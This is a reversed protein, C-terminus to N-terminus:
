QNNLIDVRECLWYEGDTVLHTFKGKVSTYVAPLRRNALSVQGADGRGEVSTVIALRAGMARFFPTYLDSKAHHPYKVIDCQLEEAGVRHIMAEQGPKEMDAMFLISRNGFSVKTVASRNNMDLNSETNQLITLTVAGDGMSFVDGDRYETIPIGREEAVRLMKLGSDTSEPPFCIKLMQVKAQDDTLALGNIHDHHPHSNFLVDIKQIGLQELLM